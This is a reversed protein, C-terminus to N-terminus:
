LSDMMQMLYGFHQLKLKLTLGELSCEPSIEKLISQNSRRATWPVRLLRRSVTLRETMDLEKHGWPSYGVLSRQGHPNELCSYQLQNGNGGERSFRGLEPILGLDGANCASEKGHLGGPFGRCVAIHLLSLQHSAATSAPSSLEPSQSPRSPHSSTHILVSPIQTNRTNTHIYTCICVVCVYITLNVINYVLFYHSM